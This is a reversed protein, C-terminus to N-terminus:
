RPLQKILKTIEEKLEPIEAMNNRIAGLIKEMRAKRTMEKDLAVKEDLKRYAEPLSSELEPRFSQIVELIQHTTPDIKQAVTFNGDEMMLAAGTGDALPVVKKIKKGLCESWNLFLGPFSKIAATKEENAAWKEEISSMTKESAHVM